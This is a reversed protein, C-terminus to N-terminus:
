EGSIRPHLLSPDVAMRSSGRAFNDLYLTAEGPAPDRYMGIKFYQSPGATRDHGISGKVRAVFEGNAWIEVLGSGNRGGEVLYAMDVWDLKPDPLIPDEGYEVEIDPACEYLYPDSLFDFREVQRAKVDALFRDPDGEAKAILARCEDDQITIHFVGNDFRQALFPSGDTAEKWQGIVWRSSGHGAIEGEVRFSFGYWASRGFPLQYARAVRIENRQCSGDCDQDAAKVRIALSAGGTLPNTHEIWYRYDRIQGFYWYRKAAPWDEFGDELGIAPDAALPAGAALFGSALVILVLRRIM